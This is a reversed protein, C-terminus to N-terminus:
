KRLSSFAVVGVVAMAALILQKNGSAQNAADAYAGAATGALSKTLDSSGQLTAQSQTILHDATALLHDFNNSNSNIGTLAIDRGAAVSTSDVTNTTSNDAFNRADTMSTSNGSNSTSKDTYSRSDSMSTSTNSTTSLGVSGGDSSVGFAGNDLVMRKDLNSTSTSTAQTSTSSGGGGGGMPCAKGGLSHRNEFSPIM